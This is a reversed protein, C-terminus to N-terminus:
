SKRQPSGTPPNLQSNWAPHANQLLRDFFLYSDRHPKPAGLLSQPASLGLNILQIKIVRLYLHALHSLTAIIFTRLIAAINQMAKTKAAQESGLGTRLVSRGFAVPKTKYLASRRM